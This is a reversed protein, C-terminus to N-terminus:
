RFCSLHPRIEELRRYLLCRILIRNQALSINKEYFHIPKERLPRRKERM